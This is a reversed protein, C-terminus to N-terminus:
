IYEQAAMTAAIYEAETSSFAVTSQKKSCWSVAVSGLNFCYRSTSRRGATDGAWDVDTFGQLVTVGGKKVADSGALSNTKSFVTKGYDVSGKIYCLIRKAAELHPTRPDQMFQSIVGVSYAIEPRTITLHILSGVVQRFSRADKLLKGEDKKMKLNMEMPTEMEKAEGM